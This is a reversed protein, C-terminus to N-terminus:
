SVTLIDEREPLGGEGILTTREEGACVRGESVAPIASGAHDLLEGIQENMEGM